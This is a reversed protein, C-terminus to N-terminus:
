PLTLTSPAEPSSSVVVGALDVEEGAGTANAAAKIQKKLEKYNIYSEAWAPVQNRPLSLITDAALCIPNHQPSLPVKEWVEHHVLQETYVEEM